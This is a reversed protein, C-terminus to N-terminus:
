GAQRSGLLLLKKIKDKVTIRFYLTSFSLDLPNGWTATNIDELAREVSGQRFFVGFVSLTAFLPSCSDLGCATPRVPAGCQGGM